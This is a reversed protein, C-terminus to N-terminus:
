LRPLRDVRGVCKFDLPAVFERRFYIVKPLNFISVFQMNCYM